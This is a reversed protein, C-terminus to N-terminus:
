PPKQNGTTDIVEWDLEIEDKITSSGGVDGDM